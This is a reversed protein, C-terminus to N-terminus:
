ERPDSEVRGSTQATESGQVGHGGSMSMSKGPSSRGFIKSHTKACYPAVCAPMTAFWFVSAGRAVANREGRDAVEEAMRRRRHSEAVLMKRGFM